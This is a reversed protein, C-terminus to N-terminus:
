DMSAFGDKLVRRQLLPGPWLRLAYTDAGEDGFENTTDFGCGSVVLSYAGQPLTIAAETVGTDEPGYLRMEGSSLHLGAEVVHDWDDLTLTPREDHLGVTVQTETWQSATFVTVGGHDGWVALGERSAREDYADIDLTASADRVIFQRHDIAVSVVVERGVELEVAM